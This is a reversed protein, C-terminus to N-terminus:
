LHQLMKPDWYLSLGAERTPHWNVNKMGLMHYKRRNIIIITQQPKELDYVYTSISEAAM